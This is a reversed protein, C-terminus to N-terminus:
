QYIIKAISCAQHISKHLFPHFLTFPDYANSPCLGQCKITLWVDKITLWVDPGNVAIKQISGAVSTTATLSSYYSILSNGLHMKACSFNAGNHWIHAVGAIKKCHSTYRKEQIVHFHKILSFNLNNSSRLVTMRAWGGTFIKVKWLHRCYLKSWHVKQIIDNLTTLPVYSKSGIINNTKVKQLVGILCEFPFYWWSMAPGYLSLFDSMYLAAHINPWPKHTQTHPYIEHLGSVWIKMFALYKSVCEKNM